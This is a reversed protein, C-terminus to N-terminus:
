FNINVERLKSELYRIREQLVTIQMHGDNSVLQLNEIRNDDKIGNIHHVIEWAELCRGLKRAVILRHENVYGDRSMMSYYPDDSQLKVTVYGAQNKYKGGRWCPNNEGRQNRRIHSKSMRERTENSVTFGLKRPM